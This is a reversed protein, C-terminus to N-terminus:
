KKGGLDFGLHRSPDIPSYLANKWKEQRYENIYRLKDYFSVNDLSLLEVFAYDINRHGFSLVIDQKIASVFAFLERGKQSYSPVEKEEITSLGKELYAHLRYLDDYAKAQEEEKDLHYLYSLIKSSAKDGWIACQYLRLKANDKNINTGIGLAEFIATARTSLLMGEGTVKLIEQYRTQALYPRYFRYDFVISEELSTRGEQKSIIETLCDSKIQLLSEELSPSSDYKLTAAFAYVDSATSIAMMPGLIEQEIELIADEDLEYAHGIFSIIKSADEEYAQCDLNGLLTTVSVMSTFCDYYASLIQKM